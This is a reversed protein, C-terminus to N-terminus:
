ESINIDDWATISVDGFIDDIADTVNQATQYGSDNTFSSVNTPFDTIDAKGHTHSANAYSGSAQKGDIAKELKGIAVKVSDSGGVASVSSAKAYGTMLDDTLDSLADPLDSKQAVVSADISVVNNAIGIGTGATYVDVLGALNVYQHTDGTSTANDKTNFVLDLYPDGVKLGTLPSNATSCTQVSASKLLYDKPIDIISGSVASGNKFLAYTKLMGSSTSTEDITYVDASPIEVNVAKNADPTLATGNVKVTEIVNVDASAEIGELKTKEATTYDETSLGKGSVKAVYGAELEANTPLAGLKTKEATTYDETSLGKGSVKAVYGAQLESNSPLAGLKNKEATTYDNTSLGKGTVKDVKGDIAQKAKKFNANTTTANNTILTKLQENTVTM